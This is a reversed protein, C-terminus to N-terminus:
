QWLVHHTWACCDPLRFVFRLLSFFSKRVNVQFAERRKRVIIRPNRFIRRNVTAVRAFDRRFCRPRFAQGIRVTRHRWKTNTNKLLSLRVISRVPFFTNQASFIWSRSSRTPFFRRPYHSFFARFVNLFSYFFGGRFSLSCRSLECSERYVLTDM